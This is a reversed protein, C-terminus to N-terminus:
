TIMGGNRGIHLDEATAVPLGLSFVAGPVPTNLLEVYGGFGDVIRKVMALGLGTGKGSEKTTFFPEFVKDRIEAPVGTGNDAVLLEVMGPQKPHPQATVSVTGGQSCADMSNKFLNLFAEVMRAPNVRVPPLGPAIALKLEMRQKAARLHLYGWAREVLPQLATATAPGQSPRALDLLQEALNDMARLGDEARQVLPIVDKQPQTKMKVVELFGMVGQLPNRLEHALGAALEGLLALRERGRAINEVRQRQEVQEKLNTYATRLERTRQEVQQELSANAEQLARELRKRDTIDRAVHVTGIMRGTQDRLPTTTVLFDGGLRPEHVEATHGQGDALTQAHPCYGPPCETGHVNKYCPQGICAQPTTGLREAMARNVRMIRHNGDLVAILDPVSNFTREWEEKARAIAEEALKGATIDYVIGHLQRNGAEGFLRGRSAIWRVADGPLLVRHESTFRRGTALTHRLAAVLRARDEPHVAALARKNNLPADLALGHLEKARASAVLLNKDPEAVWTGLEAGEVALRLQREADHLAEDAQKKSVVDMISSALVQVTEVDEQTYETAKNGVGMIAVVSGGRFIPVGLERVVPAHGPPLGKKHPLSAYDNHIVPARARLSDVWVGAQDIPYHQGKGAAKCMGRLTHTSWTQLTLSKEKENVLHFFGIQSGTLAEAQDLVMQSLNEVSAQPALESLRLRSRLLTEAKKRATIDIAYMRVREGGSLAHFAQAFCAGNVLAEHRVLAAPQHRLAAIAEPLSALFPHASGQRELGPFLQHAAPNAYVVTGSGAEVELLPNPNLEPFSALWALKAEAQTQAHRLRLATIGSALDNALDGLLKVEVESFPDPERSYINLAGFAKGEALLPLVISSAYGRKIAEERWPLFAPDTLMNRCMCVQGTRIATGTPGRGRDTDHWTLNLTELYGAEFGAYAVPRISRAEDHQALGVWVMAYGCDEVIVKCVDHVFAAENAVPMFAEDGRSVAALMRNRHRLEEEARRRASIDRFVSLRLALGGETVARSQAEVACRAGDQRLLEHEVVSEVGELIHHLIPPRQEPPILAGIPRGLLEERQWGVMHAFQENTDLITGEESLVVGEFSAEALARLAANEQLLQGRVPGARSRKM